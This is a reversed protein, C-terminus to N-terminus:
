DSDSSYNLKQVEESLSDNDSEESYETEYDELEKEHENVSKTSVHASTEMFM